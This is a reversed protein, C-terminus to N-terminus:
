NVTNSKYIRNPFIFRLIFFLLLEFHWYSQNMPTNFLGGCPIQLLIVVLMLDIVDLNTAKLKKKLIFFYLLAFCIAFFYGYDYLYVTAFGLFSRTDEGFQNDLERELYGPYPRTLGLRSLAIAVLPFTRSGYTINGHYEPLWINSKNYWQSFYSLQSNVVPSNILADSYMFRESVSISDGAFRNYTISYFLGGLVIVSTMLLLRMRRSLGKIFSRRFYIYLISYVLFFMVMRSRSFFVLGSIMFNSAVVLSWVSEKNNGRSLFYFHFPLALILLTSYQAVYAILSAGIPLQSLILEGDEGNKFSSYDTVFRTLQIYVFINIVFCVIGLFKMLKYVSYENVNCHLVIPKKLSCGVWPIFFLSFFIILYLYNLLSFDAVIFHTPSLLLAAFLSTLYLVCLLTMITNGKKRSFM